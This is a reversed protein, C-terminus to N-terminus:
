VLGRRIYNRCCRLRKRIRVSDDALVLRSVLNEHILKTLDNDQIAERLIDKLQERFQPFDEHASYVSDPYVGGRYLDVLKHYTEPEEGFLRHAVELGGLSGVDLEQASAGNRICYIVWDKRYSEDGAIYDTLRHVNLGNRALEVTRNFVEDDTKILSNFASMGNLENLRCRVRREPM